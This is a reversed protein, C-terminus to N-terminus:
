GLTVQSARGIVVGTAMQGIQEDNFRRRHLRVADEIELFPVSFIWFRMTPVSLCVPGSARGIIATPVSSNRHLFSLLRLRVLGSPPHYQSCLSRGALRSTSQATRYSNLIHSQLIATNKRGINRRNVCEM